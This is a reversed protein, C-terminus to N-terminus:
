TLVQVPRPGQLFGGSRRGELTQRLRFIQLHITASSCPRVQAGLDGAVDPDYQCRIFKAGNGAADAFPSAPHPLQPVFFTELDEGMVVSIVQPRTLVQKLIGFRDRGKFSGNGLFRTGKHQVPVAKGALLATRHRSLLMRIVGRALCPQLDPM